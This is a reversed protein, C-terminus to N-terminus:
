AVAAPESPVKPGTAGFALFLVEVSTRRIVAEAGGSLESRDARDGEKQHAHRTPPNARTTM